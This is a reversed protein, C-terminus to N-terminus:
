GMLQLCMCLLIFYFLFAWLPMIFSSRQNWRVTCVLSLSIVFPLKMKFLVSVIEHGHTDLFATEPNNILLLSETACMHCWKELCLSLHSCIDIHSSVSKQWELFLPVPSWVYLTPLNKDLALTLHGWLNRKLM